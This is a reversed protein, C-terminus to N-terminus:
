EEEGGTLQEVLLLMGNIAECASFDDSGFDETKTVARAEMLKKVAKYFAAKIEDTGVYM